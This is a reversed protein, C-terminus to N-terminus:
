ILLCCFFFFVWHFDSQFPDSTVGIWGLDRWIRGLGQRDKGIQGSEDYDLRPWTWRGVDTKLWESKYFFDVSIVPRIAKFRM